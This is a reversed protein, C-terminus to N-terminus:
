LGYLQAKTSTHQLIYVCKLSDGADDCLHSFFLVCVRKVVNLKDPAHDFLTDFADREASLFLIDIYM